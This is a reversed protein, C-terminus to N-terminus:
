SDPDGVAHCDSGRGAAELATKLRDHSEEMKTAFGVVTKKRTAKVPKFGHFPLSISQLFFVCREVLWKEARIPSGLM